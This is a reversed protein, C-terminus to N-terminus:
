SRTRRSWTRGRQSGCCVGWEAVDLRVVQVGAGQLAQYVIDSLLVAALKSALGMGAQRSDQAIQVDAADDVRKRWRHEQRRRICTAVARESGGLGLRQQRRRDRVITLIALAEHM